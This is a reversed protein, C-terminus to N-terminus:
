GNTFSTSHSAEKEFGRTEGNSLLNRVVKLTAPSQHRGGKVVKLIEERTGGLSTQISGIGASSIFQEDFSASTGILTLMIFAQPMKRRLRRVAYHIQASTTEGIFCLCVLGVDETDLSFIRSISLADRDEARAGIGERSVLQAIILAFAEGVLDRGPMCLVRKKARWEEPIENLREKPDASQSHQGEEILPKIATTEETVLKPVDEHEELDDLLEAVVDRIRQKREEDLHGRDADAQALKLAEMLINEYYALLPEDKLYTQAHEVAEIPDGALMRQYTLEEPKLAPEDGLLIDFFKLHPVHKGLVVMCM